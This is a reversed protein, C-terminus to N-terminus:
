AIHLYNIAIIRVLTVETKMPLRRSKPISASTGGGREKKFYGM